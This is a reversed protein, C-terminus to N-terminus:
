CLIFFRPKYKIMIRCFLLFLGFQGVCAPSVTRNPSSWAPSVTRNPHSGKPVETSIPMVSARLIKNCIPGIETLVHCTAHLIRFVQGVGHRLLYPHAVMVNALISGTKQFQLGVWGRCIFPVAMSTVM